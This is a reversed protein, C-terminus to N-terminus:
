FKIAAPVQEKGIENLDADFLKIVTGDEATMSCNKGVVQWKDEGLVANAWNHWGEAAASLCVSLRPRVSPRVSAPPQVFRRRLVRAHLSSPYLVPCAPEWM